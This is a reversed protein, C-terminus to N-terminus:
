AAGRVGIQEKIGPLMLGFVVRWNGNRQGRVKGYVEGSGGSTPFLLVLDDFLEPQDGELM